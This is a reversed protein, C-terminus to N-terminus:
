QVVERKELKSLFFDTLKRNKQLNIANFFYHRKISKLNTFKSIDLSQLKNTNALFYDGIHRLNILGAASLSKLKLAKDKFHHASNDLFGNGISTTNEKSNTIILHVLNHPIDITKLNLTGDKVFADGVDLIVNHNAHKSLYDTLIQRNKPDKMQRDTIVIHHCHKALKEVDLKSSFQIYKNEGYIKKLLCM